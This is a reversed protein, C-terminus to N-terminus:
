LSTESNSELEKYEENCEEFHEVITVMALSSADEEDSDM